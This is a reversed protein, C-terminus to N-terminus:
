SLCSSLRPTMWAARRRRVSPCRGADGGRPGGRHGRLGQHQDRRPPLPRLDRRHVLAGPRPDDQGLVMGRGEVAHRASDRDHYKGLHRATQDPVPSGFLPTCAAAILWSGSANTSGGPAVLWALVLALAYTVITFGWAEGISLRGSPLPRKPKNVRDIDLDYIQNLANNGANLGAAMVSGTIPYVLLTTSWAERPAAGVASLAGSM